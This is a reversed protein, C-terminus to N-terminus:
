TEAVFAEVDAVLDRNAALQSPAGPLRALWTVAEAVTKFVQTPKSAGAVLALGALFGRAIVAGLGRVALVTASAVTTDDFRTQLAASKLRVEPGPALISTGVVVNLAYLRPQSVLLAAQRQELLELRELTASQHFVCIYLPGVAGVRFGPLRGLETVAM